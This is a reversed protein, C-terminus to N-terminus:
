ARCRLFQRLICNSPELDCFVTSVLELNPTRPSTTDGRLLEKLTIIRAKNSCCVLETRECPGIIANPNRKPDLFNLRYKYM